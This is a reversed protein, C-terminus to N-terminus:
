VYEPRLARLRHRLYDKALWDLAQPAIRTCGPSASIAFVETQGDIHSCRVHYPPADGADDDVVIRWDNLQDTM